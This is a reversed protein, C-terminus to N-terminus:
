ESQRSGPEIKCKGFTSQSLQSEKLLDNLVQRCTAAMQADIENASAEMSLETKARKAAENVVDGAAPRKLGRQGSTTPATTTTSKSSSESHEDIDDNDAAGVKASRADDIQKSALATAQKKDAVTKSQTSASNNTTTSSSSSSSPRKSASLRKIMEESTKDGDAARKAIEKTFDDLEGGERTAMEEFFQRNRITAREAKEKLEVMTPLLKEMNATTWGNAALQEAFRTAFASDISSKTTQAPTESAKGQTTTAKDSGQTTTAKDSGQTATASTPAPASSSSSSSSSM